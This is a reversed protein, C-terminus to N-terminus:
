NVKPGSGDLIYAFNVDDTSTKLYYQTVSKKTGPKGQVSVQDVSM